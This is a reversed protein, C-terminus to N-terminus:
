ETMMSLYDRAAAAIDPLQNPADGISRIAEVDKILWEKQKKQFPSLSDDANSQNSSDNV